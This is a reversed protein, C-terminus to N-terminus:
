RGSTVDGGPAVLVDHPAHEMTLGAVATCGLDPALEM